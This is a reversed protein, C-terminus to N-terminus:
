HQLHRVLVVLQFRHNEGWRVPVQQTFAWARDPHDFILRPRFATFRQHRDIEGTFLVVVVREIFFQDSFGNLQRFLNVMCLNVQHAGIGDRGDIDRNLERIKVGADIVVGNATLMQQGHFCQALFETDILVHGM